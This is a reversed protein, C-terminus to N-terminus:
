GRKMSKDIQSGQKVDKDMPNGVKREKALKTSKEVVEAYRGETM